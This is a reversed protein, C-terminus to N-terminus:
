FQPLFGWRFTTSNVSTETFCIKPTLTTDITFDAIVSDVFFTLTDPGDPCQPPPWNPNFTANHIVQYQGPIRFPAKTQKTSTDFYVDQGQPGYIRWQYRNYAGSSEDIFTQLQRPCLIEEELRGKIPEIDKVIAIMKFVNTDAPFTGSCFARINPPVYISDYQTLQILYRGPAQYVYSLLSDSKNNFIGDGFEWKWQSAATARQTTNKFFATDGLCLYIINSDTGVFKFTPEPGPIKVKKVISSECGNETTITLTITKTGRYKYLHEM